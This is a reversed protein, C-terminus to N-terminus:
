IGSAVSQGSHDVGNWVVAHPGAEEFGSALTRVKQALVNFV